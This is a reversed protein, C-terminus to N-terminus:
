LLLSLFAGISEGILWILRLLIAILLAIPLPVFQTLLLTLSIERLGIGSFALTGAASIVNVIAWIGVIPMFHALSLPLLLNILSFLVCAGIVWILIYFIFWTVAERWQLPLPSHESIRAWVKNLVRPHIFMFCLMLVIILLWSQNLQAAMDPPLVWFPLTLLFAAMGALIILALELGSVISITTKSIKRQEYLVARSAIYWIPGPVRRALNAYHWCKVDFRLNNHSTLRSVLLHWAYSGLFLDIALFVIIPVSWIPRLQWEYGALTDWNALLISVAVAVSLLFFLTTVAHRRWGTQMYKSTQQIVSAIQQKGFM